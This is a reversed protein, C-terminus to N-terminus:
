DRSPGEAYGDAMGRHLQSVGVPHLGAKQELFDFLAQANAPEGETAHSGSVLKPVQGGGLQRYVKVNAAIERNLAEDALAQALAEAGIQEAAHQRAEEPTPRSDLLWIHFAEFAEPKARWVALALRAHECANEKGPKVSEIYPNCDPHLPVVLAVITLQEGYRRRAEVLYRDMTRCHSCTYDFLEVVVHKAHPSGLRPHATADVAIASGTPGAIELVNMDRPRPVVLLQGAILVATGGCGLLILEPATPPRTLNDDGPSRRWPFPNNWFVFAALVLGCVHATICYSCYSELMLFQLGLFWCAAGVAATALVV